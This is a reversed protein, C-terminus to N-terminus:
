FRHMCCEETVDLRTYEQVHVTARHGSIGPVVWPEGLHRLPLHSCLPCRGSLILSSNVGIGELDQISCQSLPLARTALLWAAKTDAYMSIIFFRM